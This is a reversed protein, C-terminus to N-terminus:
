NQITGAPAEPSLANIVTNTLAYASALVVAGTVAAVLIQKAKNVRKEEGSSTM